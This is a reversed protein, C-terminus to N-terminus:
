PGGGHGEDPRFIKIENLGGGRGLYSLVDIRLQDAEVPASFQVTTWYPYPKVELKQTVVVTGDKLLSAEIGKTARDRYTANRTNLIMVSSVPESKSFTVTVSGRSWNPLLWYDGCTDETVSNDFLKAGDFPSNPGLFDGSTSVSAPSIIRRDIYEKYEKKVYLKPCSPEPQLPLLQVYNGALYVSFEPFMAPSEDRVRHFVFSKGEVADLIVDPSSARIDSMFRDRFYGRMPSDTIESYTNTDRTAPTMGSWVYWQSMWGWVLLHKEPIPLWSWMRPSKMEFTLTPWHGAARTNHKPKVHTFFIGAFLAALLCYYAAFILVDARRDNFARALYSCFILVLPPYFMLYHDFPKDSRGPQAIVWLAVLVLSLAYLAGYRTVGAAASGNRGVLTAHLLAALALLFIFGTFCTMLLDDSIMGQIGVVSLAEKDYFFAWAIYSNWFDALHGLAALPLLFCCCTVVGGCSLLVANRWRAKRPSSLALIMAYLAALVAIPAAQLKAFPIAGLLLGILLYGGVELRASRGREMAVKVILFHAAVLLSLPLLESSYHVFNPNDTFSYFTLLPLVLLSALVRGCVTKASLYVFLCVFFLLACAALRGTNLTPDLGLLYPWCAVLSDLPGNTSGDLSNWDLGYAHIRMANAAAQAEDPNFPVPHLISSWRGCLLLLAMAIIFCLDFVRSTPGSIRRTGPSGSDFARWQSKIWSGVFVSNM